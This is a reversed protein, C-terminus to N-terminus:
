KRITVKTGVPVLSFLEDVDPNKMSICGMTWNDYRDVAYDEHPWTGHIGIGGGIRADAPILGRAKRQNFKAISEANPYDLMFFKHWKPHTKKSIITFTGEPTKRDGEVMKDSLDRNGFVVPFTVLWGKEDYVSLEFDSKDIIISYYQSSVKKPRFSTNGLFIAALIVATILNKMCAPTQSKIFSFYAYVQIDPPLFNNVGYPQFFFCNFHQKTNEDMYLITEDTFFQRNHTNPM